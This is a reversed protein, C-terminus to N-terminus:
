RRFFLRCFLRLDGILPNIIKCWLSCRATNKGVTPQEPRKRKLTVPIRFTGSVDASTSVEHEIVQEGNEKDAEKQIYTAEDNAMQVRRLAGPSGPVDTSCDSDGEVDSEGDSTLDAIGRVHCEDDLCGAIALLDDDDLGDLNARAVRNRDFEFTLNCVANIYLPKKASVRRTM